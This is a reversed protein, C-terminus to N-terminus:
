DEAQGKITTRNLVKTSDIKGEGVKRLSDAIATNRRVRALVSDYIETFEDTRSVYYATNEMLTVSDIEFKAYVYPMSELQYKQLEGPVITRISNLMAIEYYVDVMTEKDLLPEPKEVFEEACSAICLVLLFVALCHLISRM